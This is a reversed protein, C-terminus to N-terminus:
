PGAFVGPAVEVATSEKSKPKLGIITRKTNITERRMDAILQQATGRTERITSGRLGPIAQFVRMIDQETLRGSEGSIEKALQGARAKFANLKAIAKGERSGTRAFGKVGYRLANAAAQAEDDTTFLINAVEEIEDIFADMKRSVALARKTAVDVEKAGENWAQEVRYHSPLEEFTTPNIFTRKGIRKRGEVRQQAAGKQEIGLSVPGPAGGGLQPIAPRDLELLAEDVERMALGEDRAQHAAWVRAETPDMGFKNRLFAATDTISQSGTRRLRGGIKAEPTPKVQRTVRGEPSVSAGFEVAGPAGFQPLPRVGPQAASLAGGTPTILGVTEGTTPDVQPQFEGTGQTGILANQLATLNRALNEGRVRQAKDRLLKAVDPSFKDAAPDVADLNGKEAEENILEFFRQQRQKKAFSQEQMANQIAAGRTQPNIFPAARAIGTGIAGLIDGIGPM